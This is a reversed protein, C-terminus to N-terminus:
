DFHFTRFIKHGTEQQENAWPIGLVIVEKEVESIVFILNGNYKCLVILAIPWM